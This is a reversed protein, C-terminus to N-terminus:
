DEIKKDTEVTQEPKSFAAFILAEFGISVLLASFGALFALPQALRWIIVLMTIMALGFTYLLLKIGLRGTARSDIGHEEDVGSLAQTVTGSLLKFYIFALAGGILVGLPGFNTSRCLLAVVTFVLTFILINITIRRLRRDKM